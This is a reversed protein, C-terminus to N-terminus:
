KAPSGAHSNLQSHPNEKDVSLKQRAARISSVLDTNLERPKLETPLQARM